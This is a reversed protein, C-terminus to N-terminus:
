LQKTVTTLHTLWDDTLRTEATTLRQHRPYHPDDRDDIVPANWGDTTEFFHQVGSTGYIQHYGQVVVDIYSLWIPHLTETSPHRTESVAYIQITTPHTPNKNRGQYPISSPKKV